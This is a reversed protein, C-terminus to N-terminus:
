VYIFISTLVMLRKRGDAKKINRECDMSTTAKGGNGQHDYHTPDQM